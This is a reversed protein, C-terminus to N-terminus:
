LSNYYQLIKKLDQTEKFDLNYDKAYNLVNQKKDSALLKIINNKKLKFDSLFNDESLIFHNEKIVIKDNRIKEQTLPSIPAEVIQTKYAIILKNGDINGIYEYFRMKGEENKIRVFEKNNSVVKKISNSNISFVSDQSVKVDFRDFYVNYNLGAVQYKKDYTYVVSKNHTIEDEFLYPSGDVPNDKNVSKVWVGQGNNIGSSSFMGQNNGTTGGIVEANQSFSSIVFLINLITLLTKM